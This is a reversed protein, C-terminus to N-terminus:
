VIGLITVSVSVINLDNLIEKQYKESKGNGNNRKLIGVSNSFIQSKGLQNPNLSKM